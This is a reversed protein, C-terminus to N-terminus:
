LNVVTDRVVAVAAADRSDGFVENPTPLPEQESEDVPRAPKWAKAFARWSEQEDLEIIAADNAGYVAEMQSPSVRYNPGFHQADTVVYHKDEIAVVRVLNDGEGYVDNIQLM